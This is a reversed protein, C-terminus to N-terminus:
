LYKSSKSQNQLYGLVVQGDTWFYEKNISYQLEERILKSMKVSLKAATLELRPIPVFKLRAVRSKGMVFVCHIKNETDVFKLYSVLGYGEEFADSFHHLTVEKVSKFNSQKFCRNVTIDGLISLYSKWEKWDKRIDCSVPDDWKVEGQCLRQIIKRGPLIFPAVFGLPDYISSVTSLMGRRTAPTDKLHVCFGLYDHELNWQIGLARETPLSDTILDQNKVGQRRDEEPIMALVQKDNCIFKTLHFGGAKCMQRVDDVLKSAFERTNVSKLLDDVYFNKRLTEAADNGYEEQNDSATKRLAYNSCSPSSVGGFVHVCMEHDVISKNIDSDEWWLFRLFSRHKEAVKVQYFMAEIDAMIAVHEERFRILVGILQNTLDPGTLLNRNISEGGVEASCDFVVRIKGPKNPNFVGHHPIYWTKGLPAPSASKKAYGKTLMDDMFTKYYQFYSDDRRFRRELQKIRREVMMRNNPLELKPNKLPLPLQYHGDIHEVERDMLEMFRADNFSFEKFKSSSTSPQLQPETFDAEYMRRLMTAIDTERVPGKLAFHHNARKISTADHVYINNCKMEKLYAKNVGMPGVVCWGLM